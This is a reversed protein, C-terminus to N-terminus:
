ERRRVIERVGRVPRAFFERVVDARTPRRGLRHELHTLNVAPARLAVRVRGAFTPAAVVRGWWEELRGGRQSVAKWLRYDREGRHDALRGFATDFALRADLADIEAGIGARQSPTARTWAADLDSRRNTRAANLVLIAAQAAPSPVPCAVGAYRIADRHAWLRTFAAAPDLGIGPFRRHLDLYGWTDHLYTQAHGFPSGHEFTSYLRWGSALLAAGMADVQAPRVLVDIDTGAPRDPYVTPDLADGKIHLLDIGARGALTQIAARGLILRVDLPIPIISEGTM